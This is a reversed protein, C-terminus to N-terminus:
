CRPTEIGPSGSRETSTEEDIMMGVRTGLLHDVVTRAEDVRGHRGLTNVYEHIPHVCRAATHRISRRIRDAEDAPLHELTSALRRYEADVIAGRFRAISENITSMAPCLTEALASEARAKLRHSAREVADRQPELRKRSQEIVDRLTLTARDIAPPISLDITTVDTPLNRAYIPPAGEGLAVVLFDAASLQQLADNISTHAGNRPRRTAWTDITHGARALAAHVSQGVRGAGIVSIGTLPRGCSQHENILATVLDALELVPTTERVRARLKAGSSLARRTLKALITGARRHKLAMRLQDRVQEAVASEGPIDSLSGAAVAFLRTAADSGDFTHIAGDVTFSDDGTILAFLEYRQCTRIPLLEKVVACSALCQAAADLSLADAFRWALLKPTRASM